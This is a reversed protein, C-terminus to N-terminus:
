EHGVASLRKDRRLRGRVVSLAKIAGALRREALGLQKSLAIAERSGPAQRAALTELVHITVWTHALRTILLEELYSPKGPGEARLRSKYVEIRKGVAEKVVLDSGGAWKVLAREAIGALGGWWLVLNPSDDFLRRIEPLVSEDGGAARDLLAQQDPSDSVPRIIGPKPANPNLLKGLDFMTKGGRARRWRSRDRLRFGALLMVVRFYTDVTRDFRHVEYTAARLNEQFQSWEIAQQMRRLRELERGAEWLSVANRTATGLYRKVVWGNERRAAYIYQRGNRTEVSM